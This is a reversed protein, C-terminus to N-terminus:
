LDISIVYQSFQSSKSAIRSSRPYTAEPYAQAIDLRTTAVMRSQSPFVSEEVSDATFVAFLSIPLVTFCSLSCSAILQSVCNVACKSAELSSTKGDVNQLHQSIECNSGDHMTQLGRWRMVSPVGIGLLM